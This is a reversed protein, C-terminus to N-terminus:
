KRCQLPFIVGIIQTGAYVDKQVLTAVCIKNPQLYSRAITVGEM